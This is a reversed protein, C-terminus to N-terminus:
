KRAEALRTVEKFWHQVIHLHTASNIVSRVMVFSRGDPAVDYNPLGAETPGLVFPGDFLVTPVSTAFKPELTVKVSLLQNRKRYFLEGGDPSWVPEAGGGMSVVERGGPGPYRQVYVNDQGLENSVYALWRGDPSFTAARENAPTTLFPTAVKNGVSWTWIDRSTKNGLEHFAVVGGRPAWGNPFQAGARSILLEPEASEDLPASYIDYSQSGVRRSAFAVNRGDPTWEPTINSGTKALSRLTGRAVDVIYVDAREEEFTVAVHRGDPSFRPYRYTHSVDIVPRANGGRDVDVLSHDPPSGSLYALVGDDSVAFQSMAADSVTQSYVSEALAVPPGVFAKRAVDFPVIFLGGEQSYVIHGTHIYRAGAVNGVAPLWEWQRTDMSLLAMRWGDDSTRITFLLARGGPLFQPSIHNVEGRAANPVTLAQPTGGAAPVHMLGAVGAAFVITGDPGWTAGPSGPSISAAECVVQPPGGAVTVRHVKGNALFGIWEGDPSFFPTHAGETGRIMQAEFRDIDRLYLNTVAAAQTRFVVRRGDPSIALSPHLEPAFSEGSPVAIDWRATDQESRSNRDVLLWLAAFVVVAAAIAAGATLAVKRPGVSTPTVPSPLSVGDIVWRLPGILDSVKQWREDRDKKLCRQVILDLLPPVAPVAVRMPPPDKILIAGIVEARAAGQFARNGCIMEYVLAGFAFIDSREDADHGQLQEPSMYEVTGLIAGSETLPQGDTPASSLPNLKAVARDLAKTAVAASDILKAIGFDLLKAGARTLMINAPKLDRHAIGSRHAQELAEAIEIAYRLAAPLPLPGRKLRQALTEGDLLEMVLFGDGNHQGVDFLTCINPHNLRSVARAEREFRQRRLADQAIHAHLVKLAVSRDLRTDRARYVEGMGGAGLASLIQYPGLHDGPAFPM